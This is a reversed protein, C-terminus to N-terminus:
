TLDKLEVFTFFVMKKQLRRYIPIIFIFSAVM